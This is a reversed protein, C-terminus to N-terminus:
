CLLFRCLYSLSLFRGYFPPFGRLLRYLLLRDLSTSSATNEFYRFLLAFPLTSLTLLVSFLFSAWYWYFLPTLIASRGIM